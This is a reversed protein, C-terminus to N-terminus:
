KLIQKIVGLTKSFPAYRIAIDIFNSKRMMGKTHSFTNLSHLGHYSGIGSAGVGGFPINSNSFQILTDNICGSGFSLNETLTNITSKNNSFMYLALPKPLSKLKTVIEDLDSYTLVPLIPGFIEHQMVPNEWSINNLITPSIKLLKSDHNGGYYIDQDDLLNLLRDFNSQNIIKPYDKNNLIDNGYFQIIFNKLHHLLEAHVTKHVLLYDPAVCTQGANILKGWIIRKAALKINASGDIICPSKGGLELTMPILRESVQRAIQTGVVTSGTFFIYDFNQDIVKKATSADGCICAVVHPDFVSQIINQIINQTNSSIESPKVVVTNGVALAGILPIMTLQFPYNWPSIILVTGYPDNFLRTSSPFHMLPTNVRKPRSWKKIHKLMFRLEDLVLGIETTYSEFPSKGLDNHLAELIEIERNIIEDRLKKLLQIRYSVDLTKGTQFFHRQSQVIQHISM